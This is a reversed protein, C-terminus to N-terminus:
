DKACEEGSIRLTLEFRDRDSPSAKKLATDLCALFETSYTTTDKVTTAKVFEGKLYEAKLVLEGFALGHAEVERDWCERTRPRDKNKRKPTTCLHRKGTIKITEATIDKGTAASVLRTRDAPALGDFLEQARFAERARVGELDPAGPKVHFSYPSTLSLKGEYVSFIRKGTGTLRFRKSRTCYLDTPHYQGVPLVLTEWNRAPNLRFKFEQREGDLQKLTLDCGKDAVLPNESVIQYNFILATPPLSVGAKTEQTPSDVPKITQAPSCAALLAALLSALTLVSIGPHAHKKTM